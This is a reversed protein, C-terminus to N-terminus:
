YKKGKKTGLTDGADNDDNIKLLSEDDNVVEGNPHSGGTSVVPYILAQRDFKNEYFLGCLIQAWRYPHGVHKLHAEISIIGMNNLLIRNACNPSEQGTDDQYLCHFMSDSRLLSNDGLQLEKVLKVDVKVSVIKLVSLYFFEIEFQGYNKVNVTM